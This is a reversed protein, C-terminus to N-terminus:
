NSHDCAMSVGFSSPVSIREGAGGVPACPPATVADFRDFGDKSAVGSGVCAGDSAAASTTVTIARWGAATVVAVGWGEGVGVTAGVSVGSGVAV